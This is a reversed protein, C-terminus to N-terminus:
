APPLANYERIYREVSLRVGYFAAVQIEEPLADFTEGGGSYMSEAIVMEALANADPADGRDLAAWVLRRTEDEIAEQQDLPVPGEGVVSAVIDDEWRRKGVALQADTVRLLEAAHNAHRGAERCLGIASEVEGIAEAADAMAKCAEAKGMYRDALAVREAQTTDWIYKVQEAM